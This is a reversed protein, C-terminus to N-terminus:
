PAMLLGRGNRGGGPRPNKRARAETCIKRLQSVLSQGYLQKDADSYGEVKLQRRIESASAYEGSRALEFARELTSPGRIIM